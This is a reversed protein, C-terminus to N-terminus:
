SNRQTEKASGASGLISSRVNVQAWLVCYVFAEISPNLRGMGVQPLGRSTSIMFYDFQDRALDNMMFNLLHGDIAKGGEDSFKNFGPYKVGVPRLGMATVWIFEKGLGPNAGKKFRFDSDPSIEFAACIRKYSAKDYDNDTRSFTPDGPLASISQIGGM